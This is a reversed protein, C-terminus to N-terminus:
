GGIVPALAARLADRARPSGVHSFACGIATAGGDSHVSDGVMLAQDPVVGLADCAASFLGAEPKMTGYEYSLVFADVLSAAGHRDFM